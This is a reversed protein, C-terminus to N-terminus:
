KEGYIQLINDIIESPKDTINYLELDDKAILKERALRKMTSDLSKWMTKGYLQIPVRPLHGVQMLTLANFIEFMTGCGGKFAIFSSANKIISTQRFHFHDFDKTVDQWEKHANENEFPLLIRFGISQGNVGMRAGRNAALMIGPGGGTIINVGNSSLAESIETAAKCHDDDQDVRASGFVACLRKLKLNVLKNM